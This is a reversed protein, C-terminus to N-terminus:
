RIQKEEIISKINIEADALGPADQRGEFGTFITNLSRKETSLDINILREPWCKNKAVYNINFKHEAPM